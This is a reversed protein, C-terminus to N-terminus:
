YYCKKDCVEAKYLKESVSALMTLQGGCTSDKITIDRECPVYCLVFCM